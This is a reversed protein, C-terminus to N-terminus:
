MAPQPIKMEQAQQVRGTVQAETLTDAYEQIGDIMGAQNIHMVHCFQAPLWCASGRTTRGRSTASTTSATFLAGPRTLAM